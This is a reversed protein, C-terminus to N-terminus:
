TTSVVHISGIGDEQNVLPQQSTIIGLLHSVCMTEVDTGWTGNCEMCSSALYEEMESDTMNLYEWLLHAIIRVIARCIQMHQEESGTIIYSLSRFYCNSDGHIPKISAPATLPIHLCCQTVRNPGVYSLGLNTCTMRQWENDVPHYQFPCAYPLSPLVQVEAEDGEVAEEPTFPLAQVGPEDGEMAEEPPSLSLRCWQNMVRWQKRLHFLSLKCGQNM